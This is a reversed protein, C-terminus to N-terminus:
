YLGCTYEEDDPLLYEQFICNEKPDTLYFTVNDKTIKNFVKKGSGFRDKLICPLSKPQGKQCESSWPYPLGATKLFESTKLKDFGIEMAKNNALLLPVGNIKNIRNKAFFRIEPESMPIILEVDYKKVVDSLQDLYDNSDCRAILECRDFIFKGPHEKSVDCGVLFECANEIRLIKALSIGIDGGCGTILIKSCLPKKAPKNKRSLVHHLYPVDPNVLKVEKILSSPDFSTKKFVVTRSQTDIIAWSALGDKERSQGVSGVNVVSTNNNQYIFAHHGHGLLVFDEKVNACKDLKAKSSDSYLYENYDWPAGHCLLFKVNDKEVAKQFPFNLLEDIQKRALKEIAFDIGSGYKNKIENQKQKSALAEKLMVEHNGQILDKSWGNLLALVKEPHYYYGVYDGLLLLHQVGLAGAEDLVAKLAIHNGHIDSLVAIKM